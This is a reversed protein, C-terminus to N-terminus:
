TTETILQLSVDSHNKAVDWKKLFFFLVFFCVQNAREASLWGRLEEDFQVNEM